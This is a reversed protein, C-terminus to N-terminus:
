DRRVRETAPQNETAARTPLLLILVGAVIAMDAVNFIGTRLPGWGVMLFDTVTGKAIRDILNGIGGALLLSLGATTLLDPKRRWMSIVTILLFLFVGGQLLGFRIWDPWNAGLSLFAGANEAVELRVLGGLYIHPGTQRLSDRAVVKTIQDCGVTTFLLGLALVLRASRHKWIKMGEDYRSGWFSLM